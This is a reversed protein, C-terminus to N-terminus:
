KFLIRDKREELLKGDLAPVRKLSELDAFPGHQSRYQVIADGAQAPIELVEQIEKASAQNVNVAGFFKSLYSIISEFEADTARAGREAM